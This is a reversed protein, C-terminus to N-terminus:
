QYEYYVDAGSEKTLIDTGNTSKNDYVYIRAELRVAKFDTVVKTITKVENYCSILVAIQNKKKKISFCLCYEM